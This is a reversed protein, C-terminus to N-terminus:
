RSPDIAVKIAGSSEQDGMAAFAQQWQSLGFVHTLM